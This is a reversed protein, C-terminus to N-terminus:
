IRIISPMIGSSEIDVAAFSDFRMGRGVSGPNIIYLGDDYTTEPIHTHGYLVIDAGIGKAYAILRETGSKVSFTHGHTYLIKKGALTVTKYPNKSFISDCNGAVSYFSHDPYLHEIDEIDSLKDGLFFIHKAEPHELIAAEIRSGRGHSDSFVLIRM